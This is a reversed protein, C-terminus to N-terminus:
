QNEKNNANNIMREILPYQKDLFDNNQKYYNLLHDIVKINHQLDENKNNIMKSRYRAKARALGAILEQNKQERDLMNQTTQNPHKINNM